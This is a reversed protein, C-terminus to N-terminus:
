KKEKQKKKLHPFAKLLASDEEEKTEEVEPSADKVSKAAEETEVVGEEEAEDDEEDERKLVPKVTRAILASIEYLAVMPLLLLTQSVVDPPTLIAAVVAAGLIFYRRKEAMGKGTVKGHRALMYIVAPLEFMLGFPLVFSLTFNFYEEVSWMPTAVGASAEYFLDVALPFVVVYSFAVGLFFLGIMSLFVGLFVKREKKYLAPSVFDWIQWIIVPMSIVAAAVMATKFKMMLSESVRTAIVDIGRAYVPQLVFNVLPGIFFYFILIFCVFLAAVIIVIMRRMALLHETIMQKKLARDEKTQATSM